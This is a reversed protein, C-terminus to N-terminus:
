LSGLVRKMRHLNEFNHCRLFSRNCFFGVLNVRNQRPSSTLGGDHGSIWVAAGFGSTPLGSRSWPHVMISSCGAFSGWVCGWVHVVGRVLELVVSLECWYARLGAPCMWVLGLSFLLKYSRM